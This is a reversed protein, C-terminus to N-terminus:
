IFIIKLFSFCSFIFLFSGSLPFISKWVFLVISFNQYNLNIKLILLLPLVCGILYAFFDLLVLFLNHTNHLLFTVIILLSTNCPLSSCGIIVGMLYSQVFTNQRLYVFRNSNFFINLKALNMIKMLDLSVLILILYSFIPLKYILVSLGIFNTFIILIMFSTLLGTIFLSINLGYSKKSNFYSLTLPLISIFCPNFITIVGLMFLFILLFISQENSLVFLFHSLYRQLTYFFIYYEDFLDYLSLIMMM